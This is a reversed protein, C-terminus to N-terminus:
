FPMFVSAASIVCVSSNALCAQYSNKVMYDTDPKTLLATDFTSELCLHDGLCRVASCERSGKGMGQQM